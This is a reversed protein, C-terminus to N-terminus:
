PVQLNQSSHALDGISMFIRCELSDVVIFERNLGHPQFSPTLIWGGLM